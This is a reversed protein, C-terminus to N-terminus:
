VAEGMGRWLWFALGSEKWDAGAYGGGCRVEGGKRM